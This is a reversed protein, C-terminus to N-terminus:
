VMVTLVLFLVNVQSSCMYERRMTKKRNLGWTMRRPKMPACTTAPTKWLQTTLLFHRRSTDQIFTPTKRCLNLGSWTEKLPAASTSYPTQSCSSTKKTPCLPLHLCDPLLQFITKFVNVFSDVFLFFMLIVCVVRHKGSVLVVLISGFVVYVKVGDM